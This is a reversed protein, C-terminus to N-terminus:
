QPVCLRHLNHPFKKTVGFVPAAHLAATQDFFIGTVARPANLFRDCAQRKGLRIIM